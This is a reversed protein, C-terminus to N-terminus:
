RLRVGESGAGLKVYQRAYDHSSPHNPDMARVLQVIYNAVSDPVQVDLVLKQM